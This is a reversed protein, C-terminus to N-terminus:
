VSLLRPCTAPRSSSSHNRKKSRNRVYVVRTPFPIDIGEQKSCKLIRRHLVHQVQQQYGDERVSCRLTFDLPFAGLGPFSGFPHRPDTPMELVDDAALIAEELLVREVLDPDIAYSVIVPIQIVLRHRPLFYDTV